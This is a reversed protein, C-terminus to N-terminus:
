CPEAHREKTLYQKPSIGTIKTFMRFFCSYDQFGCQRAVEGTLVGDQLLKKALMMRKALIYERVTIFAYSKFERSLHYKSIYLAQAVSSLTISETYHENIYAIASRVLRSSYQLPAAAGQLILQCLRTMLITFRCRAVLEEAPTDYGPADVIEMLRRHFQGCEESTLHYLFQNARMASEIIQVFSFADTGLEMASSRSLYIFVRQLKSGPRGNFVRHMREPPVILLDNPKLSYSYEEIYFEANGELLFYIEYHDHNHFFSPYSEDNCPIHRIEVDDASAVSKESNKWQIFFDQQRYWKTAGAVEHREAPMVRVQGEANEQTYTLM